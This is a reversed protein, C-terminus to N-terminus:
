FRKGPHNKFLPGPSFGRELPIKTIIFRSGAEESIIASLVYRGLVIKTVGEKLPIKSERSFDQLIQEIDEKELVTETPMTGMMGKVMVRQGPGNSEIIKIAPDYIMPEIKGWNVNVEKEHRASPKLYSFQPPLRTEPIKLPPLKRPPAPHGRFVGPLFEVELTRESVTEKIKSELREKKIEALKRERQALFEVPNKSIILGRTFELLVLTKLEISSSELM